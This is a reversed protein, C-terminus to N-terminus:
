QENAPLRKLMIEKVREPTIGHRYEQALAHDSSELEFHPRMGPEQIHAHMQLGNTDPYDLIWNSLWSFM